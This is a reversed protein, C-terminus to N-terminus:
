DDEAAPPPPPARAAPRGASRDAASSAANQTTLLGSAPAGPPAKPPPAVAGFNAHLERATRVLFDRGHITNELTDFWRQPVWEVGHLAGLLAGCTTAISDADGGAGVAAALCDVPSDWLRLFHWLAAPVTHMALVPFHEWAAFRFMNEQEHQVLEQTTLANVCALLDRIAVLKRPIWEHPNRGHWKTRADSLGHSNTSLFTSMSQTVQELFMNPNFKAPEEGLLLTIAKAVLFAGENCSMRIHLGDFVARALRADGDITSTDRFALALPAVCMVGGCSDYRQWEPHFKDFKDFSHYGSLLGDFFREGGSGFFKGHGRSKMIAYFEVCRMGVHRPDLRGMEVLSAAIALSQNTDDTLLGPGLNCDSFKDMWRVGSPNRNHIAGSRWGEWPAGLADGCAVGLMCGLTRAETATTGLRAVTPVLARWRHQTMTDGITLGASLEVIKLDCAQGAHTTVAAATLFHSPSRAPFCLAGDVPRLAFRTSGTEALTIIKSAVDVCVFLDAQPRDSGRSAMLRGDHLLQFAQQPADTIPDWLWLKGGPRIYDAGGQVDLRKGSQLHVLVHGNNKCRDATAPEDAPTSTCEAEPEPPSSM